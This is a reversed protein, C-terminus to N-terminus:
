RPAMYRPTGPQNRNKPQTARAQGSGSGSIPGIRGIAGIHRLHADTKGGRILVVVPDRGERGAVEGDDILVDHHAIKSAERAGAPGPEVDSDEDIGAFRDRRAEPALHGVTQVQDRACGSNRLFM